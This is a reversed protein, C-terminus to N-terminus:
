RVVCVRGVDPPAVCRRRFRSPDFPGGKPLREAPCESYASFIRRQKLDIGIDQNAVQLPM